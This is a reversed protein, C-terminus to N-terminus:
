FTVEFQSRIAFAGDEFGRNKMWDAPHVYAFIFMYSFNKWVPAIFINDFEWGEDTNLRVPIKTGDPLNFDTPLVEEGTQITNYRFEQGLFILKNFEFFVKVNENPTIGFSLSLDGYYNHRNLHSKQDKDGGSVFDLDYYRGRYQMHGAVDLIAGAEDKLSWGLLDTVGIASLAVILVLNCLKM